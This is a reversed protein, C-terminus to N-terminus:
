IHKWSKRIIIAHINARHVGYSEALDDKSIGAAAASRIQRVQEETLKAGRTMRQGAHRLNGSRDVWELNTHHNNKRCSDLHNVEPLGNPNAVFETAVLRHIYFRSVIGDRCLQVSFYGIRKNHIPKLIRERLPKICPRAKNKAGGKGLYTRALSKVRGLNSVEYLGEYNTIPKWIEQM